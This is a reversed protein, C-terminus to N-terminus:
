KQSALLNRKTIQHHHEAHYITFYMMERATIKGLLPHPLILIDLEAETFKNVRRCLKNVSNLLRKSLAGRQSFTVTAPIFRGTATGGDALKALYKDVLGEYTKSPRNSKLFIRKLLFGPIMLAQTLPKVARYIHNLQQGPTWKNNFGDMFNEEPLAIIFDILEKHKKNLNDTIEKRNL